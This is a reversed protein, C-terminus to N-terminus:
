NLTSASFTRQYVEFIINLFHTDHLKYFEETKISVGINEIITECKLGEVCLANWLHHFIMYKSAPSSKIYRSFASEVSLNEISEKNILHTKRQWVLMIFDFILKLSKESM